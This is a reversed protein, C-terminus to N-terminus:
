SVKTDDEPSSSFLYSNDLFVLNFIDFLKELYRDFFKRFLNFHIIEYISKKFYKEIKSM